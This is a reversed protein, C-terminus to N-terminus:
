LPLSSVTLRKQSKLLAAFGSAGVDCTRGVHNEGGGPGLMNVLEALTTHSAFTFPWGPAIPNLPAPAPEIESSTSLWASWVFDFRSM